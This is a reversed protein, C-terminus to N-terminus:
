GGAILSVPLNPSPTLDTDEQDVSLSMNSIVVGAILSGDAPDLATFRVTQGKTLTFFPPLSALAPAAM